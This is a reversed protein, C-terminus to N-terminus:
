RHAERNWFLWSSCIANWGTHVLLCGVPAGFEGSSWYYQVIIIEVTSKESSVRRAVVGQVFFLFLLVIAVITAANTVGNASSEVRTNHTSSVIGLDVKLRCKLVRYVILSLAYLTISISCSYLHWMSPNLQDAAAGLWIFTQSRGLHAQGTAVKVVVEVLVNALTYLSCTSVTSAVLTADSYGPSHQNYM